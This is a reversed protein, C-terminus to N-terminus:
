YRPSLERLYVTYLTPDESSSSKGFFRNEASLVFIEAPIASDKGTSAGYTRTLELKDAILVGRVFLQNSRAANNVDDAEVDACTNITGRAVLWADIRGVGCNIDIDGDAFIMYQPVQSSTTYSITMDYTLNSAITLNGKTHIVHSLNRTLPSSASITLTSNDSSETYRMGPTTESYNNADALNVNGSVAKYTRGNIIANYITDYITNKARQLGASVFNVGNFNRCSTNPITLTSMDCFDTGSIGGPNNAAVGNSNSTFGTAAGSALGVVSKNAVIGQEIWSSFTYQGDSGSTRYASYGNLVNKTFSNAVVKGAAYLGGNWVQFTPRKFVTKCHPTSYYAYGSGNANMDMDGNPSAPWVSSGVCIYEGAKLDYANVSIGAFFSATAGSMDGSSNLINGVSSTVERCDEGGYFGCNNDSSYGSTSVPYTAHFVYLRVNSPQTKTAYTGSTASNYKPDTQVTVNSVNFTEGAYVKDSSIEVSSSNEYNFPIKVNASSSYGSYRTYSSEYYPIITGSETKHTITGYATASLAGAHIYSYEVTWECYYNYEPEADEDSEDDSSSEKQVKENRTITAAATADEYGDISNYSNKVSSADASSKSACNTFGDETNDSGSKTGSVRKDYVYNWTYPVTTHKEASTVTNYTTKVGQTIVQGVGSPLVANSSMNAYGSSGNGVTNKFPNSGNFNSSLSVSDRFIWSNDTQITFENSTAAPFTREGLKRVVNPASWGASLHPWRNNPTDPDYDQLEEATPNSDDHSPSPQNIRPIQAGPYYCHAFTILDGPKAWVSSGSSSTSTNTVFSTTLTTGSDVNGSVSGTCFPNLKTDPPCDEDGDECPCNEGECPCDEGECPCDEDGDECPDPGPDEGVTVILCATTKPGSKGDPSLIAECFRYKGAANFTIEGYNKEFTITNTTYYSTNQSYQKTMKGSYYLPETCSEDPCFISSHNKTGYIKNWTVNSKKATTSLGRHKFTINSIKDGVTITAELQAKEEGYSNVIDTTDKMAVGGITAKVQSLSYYNGSSPTDTGIITICVKTINKQTGNAERWQSECYEHEVGVDEVKIKIERDNTFMMGDKDLANKAIFATQGNITAKKKLIDKKSDSAKRNGDITYEYTWTTDKPTNVIDAWAFHSFNLKVTSGVKAKVPESIKEIGSAGGSSVAIAMKEGGNVNLISKSSYDVSDTYCFWGVNDWTVGKGLYKTKGDNAKDAEALRCFNYAVSEYGGNEGNAYLDICSTEDDPNSFDDKYTGEPHYLTGSARYYTTSFTAQYKQEAGTYNYVAGSLDPVNSGFNENLYKAGSQGRKITAVQKNRSTPPNTNEDFAIYGYNYLESGSECKGFIVAGDKNTNDTYYMHLNMSSDINKRLPYSVWALGYGECTGWYKCEGGQTTGGIGSDNAFVPQM